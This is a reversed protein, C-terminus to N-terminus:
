RSKVDALARRALAAYGRGRLVTIGPEPSNTDPGSGSTDLAWRSEAIRAVRGGPRVFLFCRCAPQVANLMDLEEEVGEMGGVFFAASLPEAFMTERMAKTSAARSSRRPTVRVEALKRSKGRPEAELETLRRVENTRSTLFWPSEYIEVRGGAGRHLGALNLVLPSISPHGGFVLVDGTRLTADIVSAAALGIDSPDFAGAEEVARPFAPFSASLLIRRSKM